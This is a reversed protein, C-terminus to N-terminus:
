KVTYGHDDVGWRDAAVDTLLHAPIITIIPQDQEIPDRRASLMENRNVLPFILPRMHRSRGVGATVITRRKQHSM